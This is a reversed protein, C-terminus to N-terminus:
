GKKGFANSERTNTRIRHCNACVVECKAMEERLADMSGSVAFAAMSHSKEVGPLHDFDFIEPHEDNKIGCDVCGSRKAENIIVRRPERRNANLERVCLRCPRVRTRGAKRTREETDLYFMSLPRDQHCRGCTRVQM